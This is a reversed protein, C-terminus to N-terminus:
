KKTGKRVRESRGLESKKIEREYHMCNESSKIWKTLVARQDKKTQRQDDYNGVSVQSMCAYV